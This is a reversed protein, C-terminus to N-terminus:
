HTEFVGTTSHFTDGLTKRKSVDEENQPPNNMFYTKVETTFGQSSTLLNRM